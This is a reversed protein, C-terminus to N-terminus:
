TRRHDQGEIGIAELAKAMADPDDVTVTLSEMKGGRVYRTEVWERFCLCVGGHASTGFTFGHDSLSGRPGIAKWWQYPGTLRYGCVNDISTEVALVGFRAVLCGQDTLEVEAAGPRVGILRLPWRWPRAARLAFTRSV